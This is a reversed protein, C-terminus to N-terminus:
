NFSIKAININSNFMNYKYIINKYTKERILQKRLFYIYNDKFSYIAIGNGIAVFKNSITNFYYVTNNIELFLTNEVKVGKISTDEDIELVRCLRESLEADFEMAGFVGKDNLSAKKYANLSFIPEVDDECTVTDEDDVTLDISYQKDGTKRLEACYFDIFYEYEGTSDVIHNDMINVPKPVNEFDLIKSFEKVMINANNGCARLFDGMFESYFDLTLNSNDKNDLVWKFENYGVDRKYIDLDTNDKYPEEIYDVGWTNGIFKVLLKSDVIYVNLSKDVWLKYDFKLKGKMINAICSYKLNTEVSYLPFPLMRYAKSYIEICKSINEDDKLEISINNIAVKNISLGELGLEFLRIDGVDVLQGNVVKEVTSYGAVLLTNFCM